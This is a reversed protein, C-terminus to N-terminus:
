GDARLLKEVAARPSDFTEYNGNRYDALAEDEAQRWNASWYYAQDARIMPPIGSVGGGAAGSSSVFDSFRTETGGHITKTTGLTLTTM